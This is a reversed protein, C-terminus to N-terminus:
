PMIATIQGAEIKFVLYQYYDSPTDENPLIEWGDLGRTIEVIQRTISHSFEMEEYAFNASLLRFRGTQGKCNVVFRIRIWGSEELRSHAYRKQFVRELAIKEGKFRLGKLFNHYQKIDDSNCLEFDEKDLTPDYAIDGVNRLYTPVSQKNHETSRCGSWLLTYLFLLVFTGLIKM